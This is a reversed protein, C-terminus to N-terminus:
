PERFVGEPMPAGVEISTFRIVTRSEEDEVIRVSQIVGPRESLRVEVRRVFRDIGERATLVVTRPSGPQLSAEFVTSDDFRGALWARIEDLVMRRVRDGAGADLVWDGDVRVWGEARDGSVLTVSRIPELYEWRVRDPAEYFLRGRSILPKKLIPLQKEQIFEARLSEVGAFERRL